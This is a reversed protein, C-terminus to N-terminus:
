SPVARAQRLRGCTVDNMVATLETASQQSGVDWSAVPREICLRLRQSDANMEEDSVAGRGMDIGRRMSM